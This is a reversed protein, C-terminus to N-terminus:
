ATRAHTTDHHAEPACPAGPRAHTAAGARLGAMTTEIADRALADADESSALRNSLRLTAIGFIPACILRLAVVADLTGPFFGEDIGRQMRGRIRAHIESMFPFREYEQGIRPVRRDLFVLAFYQPHDKSFQYLQWATARIDELPDASPPDAMHTAGLLRFGEEALALFIDDKSSFYSYIAAPSYDIKSAINRISVQTYGDAEFLALAADLIDRRTSERAIQQRELRGM